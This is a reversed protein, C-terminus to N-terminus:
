RSTEKADLTDRIVRAIQQPQYPKPVFVTDSQGFDKGVLEASYGSTMIVKLEPKRKKLEAVLDAGSMDGPMVMDTLLLDISGYHEDWIHLAEAACSATLVNFHYRQLIKQTLELLSIEDEVLLITENGGYVETETGSPPPAPAVGPKEQVAPLFITFTTGTGVQSEVEIWGHHQKVIGYVTALGLGSGKGTEKTTFFPEFIRPLLHAEIGSGTDQVM